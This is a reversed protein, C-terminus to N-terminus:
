DSSFTPLQNHPRLLVRERGEYLPTRGGVLKKLKEDAIRWEERQREAEERMRQFKMTEEETPEHVMVSMDAMMTLMAGPFVKQYADGRPASADIMGRWSITATENIYRDRLKALNDAFASLIKPFVSPLTSGDICELFLEDMLTLFEGIIGESNKIYRPDDLWAGFQHVVAVRTEGGVYADLKKSQSVLYIGLMVAQQMPLSRKYLRKLLAYNPATEYGIIVHERVEYIRKGRIRFIIVSNEEIPKAAVVYQAKAYEDPYSSLKSDKRVEKLAKRLLDKLEQFTRPREEDVTEIVEQAFADIAEDIGVGGIALPYNESVYLKEVDRKQENVTEQTDACVVAGDLCYFASIYTM